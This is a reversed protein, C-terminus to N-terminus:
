RQSCSSSLSMWPPSHVDEGSTTRFCSAPNTQAPGSLMPLGRNERDPNDNGAERHMTPMAEGTPPADGLPCHTGSGLWGRSHPMMRLDPNWVPREIETTNPIITRTVMARIPLDACAPDESRVTAATPTADMTVDFGLVAVWGADAALITVALCKLPRGITGTLVRRM